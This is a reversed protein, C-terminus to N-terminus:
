SRDLAEDVLMSFEDTIARADAMEADTEMAHAAARLEQREKEKLFATMAERFLESRNRDEEKCIRDLASLVAPPMTITIPLMAAANRMDVVQMM